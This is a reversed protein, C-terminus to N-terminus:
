TRTPDSRAVERTLERLHLQEKAREEGLGIVGARHALEVLRRRGIGPVDAFGRECALTWAQRSGGCTSSAPRDARPPSFGAAEARHQTGHNVVHVLMQRIPVVQHVYGVLGDTVTPLLCRCSGVRSGVHLLQDIMPLSEREPEPSEGADQSAHRWRQSAGRHHVLIAGLVREGVVDMRTWVAPDLSDLVSLLQRTAGATAPLGGTARWFRRVGRVLLSHNAV